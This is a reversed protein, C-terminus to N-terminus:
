RSRREKFFTQMLTRSQEELIGNTVKIQHNFRSDQSFDYLSGAAGWKPDKAGFVLRKIRAHILAGMCMVCPEITVYLTSNLLRYNAMIQSAKRIAMIEAHATTDKRTIVQNCAATHWTEDADVLVAGVPVEAMEFAKQAQKLAVRMWKEDNEMMAIKYASSLHIKLCAHNSESRLQPM